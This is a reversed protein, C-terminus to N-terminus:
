LDWPEVDESFAREVDAKVSANPEECTPCPGNPPLTTGCAGCSFPGLAEVARDFFGIPVLAARRKGYHTIVTAKQHDADSLFEGLFQKAEAAQVTKTEMNHMMFSKSTKTLGRGRFEGFFLGAPAPGPLLPPPLSGRAQPPLRWMTSLRDRPAPRTTRRRTSEKADRESRTM